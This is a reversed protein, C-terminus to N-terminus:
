RRIPERPPTMLRCHNLFFVFKIMNILGVLQYDMLLSEFDNMADDFESEEMGLFTAKLERSYHLEGEYLYWYYFARKNKM